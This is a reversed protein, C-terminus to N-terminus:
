AKESGAEDEEFYEEYFVYPNERPHSVMEARPEMGIADLFNGLGVRQIFEGVRERNKGEESWVDWIKAVLEKIETYPPEMKVFPILVSSLLAGEVIPAKSGLLVAAGRDKGPRLAKPMVNICHMCKVCFQNDIHLDEGDWEMCKAPCNNVVDSKIDMGSRAYERVANNDMQIDDRWIGIISMDARAISAVCDNPCGSMKFKFKYPFGPRHLEDQFSMTLDYTVAMTDYCAWECRAQGVCCSPTRVDSGSGGLDFGAKTLEAFIPELESTQTGLFVIDGTSGHMNTLGSGHREWIDCLTRLAESNYFWGSPQNIRITHFHSINPFKDPLDSYRGIVGGGYGMVGVIGGHKWHGIKQDYSLELQGLLDRAMPSKQAALKIEKVFSPWKGKELEDLKPTKPLADAM